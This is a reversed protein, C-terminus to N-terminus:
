SGVANATPPDTHARHVFQGKVRPRKEALIKRSQYRVKKEFCRDKRKLRFKTLAAERQSSRLSDVGSGERVYRGSDNLSESATAMEGAVALSAKGDNGSCISGYASGSIHNDVTCNGLSSCGSQSAAPSGPKLHEVNELKNQEHLTQDISKGTTKDSEDYGQESHFTSQTSQGVSKISFVPTLDSQGLFLSPFYHSYGACMNDSRVSTVPFVGLQPGQISSDAQETQGDVFNVMNDQRNHSNSADESKTSPFTPFLPQLGKSNNYRSFASADSHKLAPREETLEKHSGDSSRLSLELGFHKMGDDKRNSSGVNCNPWNDFTCLLDRVGVSPEVEYQFSRTGSATKAKEECIEAQIGEDQVMTKASVNEERLRSAVSNLAEDLPVIDSGFTGKTESEHVVSENDLRDCDELMEIDTNSLNSASGYKLQSIDQMNQICASEAELSPTTCSNQADSAKQSFGKTKHTCAAYDNSHNSAANNESTAEVKQQSVTLNQPAQGSALTHRRWVHQWLNRLENRRVPKILYDAAGKQMCKLVMNVSDQSSMMIVPIHKCIDHEMVLTLLAFGSISPLEAETLILDIKNHKVKITEWARLGDSVSVVRYNCKRLLATIIQRTSDDAEVLLVRLVTTPLYNGWTVVETSSGGGEEEEEKREIKVAEMEGVM